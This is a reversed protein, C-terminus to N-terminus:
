MQTISKVSGRVHPGDKIKCNLSTVVDKNPGRQVLLMPDIPGIRLAIVIINPMSAGFLDKVYKMKCEYHTLVTPESVM